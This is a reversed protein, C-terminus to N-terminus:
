GSALSRSADDLFNVYVTEGDAGTVATQAGTWTM